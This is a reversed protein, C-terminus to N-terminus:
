VARSLRRGLEQLERDHPLDQSSLWKSIRSPMVGAVDAARQWSMPYDFAIVRAYLVQVFLAPSWFDVTEVFRKLEDISNVSHVRGRHTIAFPTRDSM